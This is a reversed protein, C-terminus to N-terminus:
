RSERVVLKLGLVQASSQGDAETQWLEDVKIIDGFLRLGYPLDSPACILNLITRSCCVITLSGTDSMSHVLTTRFFIRSTDLFGIEEAIIRYCDCSTDAPGDDDGEEARRMRGTDRPRWKHFHPAIWRRNWEVLRAVSFRERASRKGAM